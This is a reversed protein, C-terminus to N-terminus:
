LEGGRWFSKLEETAQQSAASDGSAAAAKGLGRLSVTRKPCRALAREFQQRAEKARGAELLMEGYLEHTPKVPVPPGFEFSLADEAAAAAAVLRLAEERKGEARLVAAELQKAMIEASKRDNPPEAMATAPLASAPMAGEHHSEHASAPGSGSLRAQAKALLQKAEALHGNAAAVSGRAALAAIYPSLGGQSLDFDGAVEAWEGTEVAYDAWMQALHALVRPNKTRQASGAVEDLVRRADRNRGQQLYGYELWLLAHFNRGDPSLGKRKLRADAVAVSAENASVVDDWMGLAVFIHSPMHQAHSASGAIKGYVRAARLGLPAHVPDDYAHILYHIAGPHQPNKAFIEEAVAAARMYVAYQREYQCTGLLAVAYLAAAELDNPYKEMMRRMADAYAIDRSIKDGEGYLTEVARLYDKERETPALDIRASATPALRSLAERASPVDQEVWIPHTYTLAEGWYAMAFRPELRSAAQFEERADAYEFSHLLLMGQIFHKQAEPSGSTPFDIRGLNKEQACLSLSVACAAALLRVKM